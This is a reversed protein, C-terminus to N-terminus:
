QELLGKGRLLRAIASVSTLDAIEDGDLQIQYREEIALILDMHALSDWKGTSAMTLDMGVSDRPLRLCKAVILLLEEM